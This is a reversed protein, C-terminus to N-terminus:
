CGPRSRGPAVWVGLAGSEILRWRIRNAGSGRRSEPAMSNSLLAAPCPFAMERSLSRAPVPVMGTNPSVRSRGGKAPQASRLDATWATGASRDLRGYATARGQPDRTGTQLGWRSSQGATGQRRAMGPM